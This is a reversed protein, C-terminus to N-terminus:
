MVGDSDVGLTILPADIGVSSARLRALPASSVIKDPAATPGAEAKDSGSEEAQPEAAITFGTLTSDDPGFEVLTPRSSISQSLLVGVLLAVGAAVLLLAFGGLFRNTVFGEDWGGGM